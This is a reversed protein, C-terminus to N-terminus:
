GGRKLDLVKKKNACNPCGSGRNRSNILAEWEYGCTNCKWWAKKASSVVFDTPLLENNKTPHWESALRPNQTELDNFGVWIRQNACYPCGNGRSRSSVVAQWEHGQACKWWM